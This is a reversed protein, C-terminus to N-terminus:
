RDRIEVPWRLHVEFSRRRWEVVTWLALVVVLGVAALAEVPGVWGPLVYAVSNVVPTPLLTTADSVASRNSANPTRDPLGLAAASEGGASEDGTGLRESEYPFGVTSSWVVSGSRDIELV